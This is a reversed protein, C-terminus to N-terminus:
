YSNRRRSQILGILGLGLLALSAPEPVNNTAKNFSIDQIAFFNGDIEVRGIKEGANGTIGWFSFTSALTNNYTGILTNLQDFIRITAGPDVLGFGLGSVSNGNALFDINLIGSWSGSPGIEGSANVLSTNTGGYIGPLTSFTVDSSYSAGNTNSAGQFSIHTASGGLAASFAPSTSASNYTFGSVAATYTLLSAFSYSSTTLTLLFATALTLRKFNM